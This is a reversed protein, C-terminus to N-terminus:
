YKFLCCFLLFFGLLLMDTSGDVTTKVDRKHKKKQADEQKMPMTRKTNRWEWKKKIVTSSFYHQYRVTPPVFGKIPLLLQVITGACHVGKCKVYGQWAKCLLKM